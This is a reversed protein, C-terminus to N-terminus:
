GNSISNTAKTLRETLEGIVKTTADVELELNKIFAAVNCIKAKLDDESANIESLQEDTIQDCESLKDALQLFKDTLEYLPKM